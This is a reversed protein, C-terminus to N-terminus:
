LMKNAIYEPSRKAIGTGRAKASEAMEDCITDAFNIHQMGAVMINFDSNYM